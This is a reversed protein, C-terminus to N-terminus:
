SREVRSVKAANTDRPETLAAKRSGRLRTKAKKKQGTETQKEGKLLLPVKRM